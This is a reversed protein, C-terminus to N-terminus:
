IAPRDPHKDHLFLFGNFNTAFKEFEIPDINKAVLLQTVNKMVLESETYHTLNAFSYVCVLTFLSLPYKVYRKTFYSVIRRHMFLYLPFYVLSPLLSTGYMRFYLPNSVDFRLLSNVTENQIQVHLKTMEIAKEMDNSKPVKTRVTYEM